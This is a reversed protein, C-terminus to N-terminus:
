SLYVQSAALLYPEAVSYMWNYSLVIDIQGGTQPSVTSLAPAAETVKEKVKSIVMIANATPEELQNFDNLSLFLFIKYLM